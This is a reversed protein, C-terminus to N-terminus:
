STFTSSRAVQTSLEAMAQVVRAFDDSGHPFAPNLRGTVKGHSCVLIKYVLAHEDGRHEVGYAVRYCAGVGNVTGSAVIDIHRIPFIYTGPSYEESRASSSEGPQRM